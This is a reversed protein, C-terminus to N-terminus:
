RRHFFDYSPGRYRMKGSETTYLMSLDRKFGENKGKHRQFSNSFIRPFQKANRWHLVRRPGYTRLSPLNYHLCWPLVWSIPFTTMLATETTRGLPQQDAIRSLGSRKPVRSISRLTSIIIHITNYLANYACRRRKPRSSAKIPITHSRGERSQSSFDIFLHENGM